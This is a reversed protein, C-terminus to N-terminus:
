HDFIVNLLRGLNFIRTIRLRIYLFHDLINHCIRVLIGFQLLVVQYKDQCPMIRTVRVEPVIEILTVIVHKIRLLM